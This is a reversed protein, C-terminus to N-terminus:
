TSNQILYFSANTALLTVGNSLYFNDTVNKFSMPYKNIGVVGNGYLSPTGNLRAPQPYTGNLCGLSTFCATSAILTSEQRTSVVLNLSNNGVVLNTTYLGSGDTTKTLAMSYSVNKRLSQPQPLDPSKIALAAVAATSM